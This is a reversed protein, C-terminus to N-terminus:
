ALIQHAYHLRQRIPLQYPCVNECVACDKCGASTKTSLLRQYGRKAEITKGYDNHYMTYRMIDPIPIDAPCVQQCKGCMRCYDQWTAKVYEYLKQQELASMKVGSVALNEELIDFNTMESVLGAVADNQLVWKLKAQAITTKDSKFKDLKQRNGGAMTKMAIVGVDAEKASALVGQLGSDKLYDEYVKGKKIKTGSYANYAVMFMDYNGSQILPTLVNVPDYHCSVGMFRIKGDRKLQEFAALTAEDSLESPKSAGHILLIDLYDTNLRQLSGEVERILMEKSSIKPKPHFKSAIYFKDRRGKLVKGIIRESNGKMYSSSTDVYNVGMEIAKKFVPESPVPSGGLSIESIMLNTRGLRRYHMEDKKIRKFKTQKKEGLSSANLGLFVASAASLASNKLFERRSMSNRM